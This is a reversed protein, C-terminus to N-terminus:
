HLSPKKLVEARLEVPTQMDHLLLQLVHVSASIQLEHM